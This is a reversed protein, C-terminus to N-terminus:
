LSTYYQKLIRLYRLTDRNIGTGGVLWINDVFKDLESKHMRGEFLNRLADVFKSDLVFGNKVDLGNFFSYVTGKRLAM